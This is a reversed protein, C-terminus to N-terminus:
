PIVATVQTSDASEVGSSTMSTAVYYYTQGSLVASDTYSNTPVISADLKTYPGGSTQSRYVNYGAVVSTSATWSLGVSHSTTQAGTGSLSLTSPSNTANSTLTISGSSAGSGSPAFTVNLTVTKGANVIQGSQIGAATYGAGSVTVNSITVDSNGANTFVVPLMSNGGIKVSLFSLSTTSANLVLTSAPPPNTGKATSGTM